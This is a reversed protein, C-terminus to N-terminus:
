FTHPVSPSWIPFNNENTLKQFIQAKPFHKFTVTTIARDKQTSKGVLFITYLNQSFFPNLLMNPSKKVLEDPRGPQISLSCISTQAVFNEERLFHVPEGCTKLCAILL